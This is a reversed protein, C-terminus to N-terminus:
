PTTGSHPHAHTHTNAHRLFSQLTTFSKSLIRGNNMSMGRPWLVLYVFFFFSIFYFFFRCFSSSNEACFIRCPGGIISKVLKHGRSPGYVINLRGWLWGRLWRWRRRIQINLQEQPHAYDNDVEVEFEVEVEVDTKCQTGSSM